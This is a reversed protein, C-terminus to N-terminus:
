NANIIIQNTSAWQNDESVLESEQQHRLLTENWDGYHPFALGDSFEIYGDRAIEYTLGRENCYKRFELYSEDTKAKPKKAVVPKKIKGSATLRYVSKVKARRKVKRDRQSVVERTIGCVFKRGQVLQWHHGASVLFVDDGRLKSSEKLWQGLTKEGSVCSVSYVEINCQDFAGILESAYTGKISAKGTVTRLLRAAEGTTLGTVASIVSPGCYRNKDTKKTGHNVAHLKLKMTTNKKTRRQRQAESRPDCYWVQKPKCASTTDYDL